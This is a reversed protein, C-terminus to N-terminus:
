LGSGVYTTLEEPMRALIPNECGLSRAKEWVDKATKGTALVTIEDKELAVWEGKYKEYIKTWDIAM